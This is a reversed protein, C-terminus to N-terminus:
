EQIVRYFGANGSHVATDSYTTTLGDSPLGTILPALSGPTTGFQVTYTKGAVSDWKLDWGGGQPSLGTIQPRSLAVSLNDIL